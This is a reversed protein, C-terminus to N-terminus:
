NRECRAMRLFTLTFSLRQERERRRCRRRRRMLFLITLREAGAAPVASASERYVVQLSRPQTCVYKKRKGRRATRRAFAASSFSKLDNIGSTRPVLCEVDRFLDRIAM